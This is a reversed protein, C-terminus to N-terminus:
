ASPPGCLRFAPFEGARASLEAPTSHKDLGEFFRGVEFGFLRLYERLVPEKEHDALETASFPEVRRGLRLEGSRAARLNRVWETTGRPAVLYQAGDVELLNVVTIRTVGSRRGVVRLERAGRLSLGAAVLRRLVAATLRDVRSPVLYRDPKEQATM